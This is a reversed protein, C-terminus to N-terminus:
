QGGTRSGVRADSQNSGRNEGQDPQYREQTLVTGMAVSPPNPDDGEKEWVEPTRAYQILSQRLPNHPASTFPLRGEEELITQRWQEPHSKQLGVPDSNATKARKTRGLAVPFLYFNYLRCLRPKSGLGSILLLTVTPLNRLM